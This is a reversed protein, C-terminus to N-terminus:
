WTGHHVARTEATLKLARVYERLQLRPAEGSVGTNAWSGFQVSRSLVGASSGNTSLKISLSRCTIASSLMRFTLGLM